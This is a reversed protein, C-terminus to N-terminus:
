SARAIAQRFAPDDLADNIVERLLDDAVARLDVPPKQVENKIVTRDMVVTGSATDRLTVKLSAHAEGRILQSCDFKLIRGSLTYTADAHEDLLGRASLGSAFAKRITVAASEPLELRKREAGFFFRIAGLRQPDGGREDVFDGVRVLPRAGAAPSIGTPVYGVTVSSTSCGATAAVISILVIMEPLRMSEELPEGRQLVPARQHRWLDLRDSRIRRNGTPLRTVSGERLGQM